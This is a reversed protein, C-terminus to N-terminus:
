RFQRGSVFKPPEGSSRDSIAQEFLADLRAMKDARLAIEEQNGDRSLLEDVVCEIFYTHTEPPLPILLAYQTTNNAAAPLATQLTFVGGTFLTCRRVSGVNTPQTVDAVIELQMGDYLSPRNKYNPSPTGVTISTTSGGSATAYHLPGWSHVYWIRINTFTGVRGRIQITGANGYRTFLWRQEDSAFIGRAVNMDEFSAKKMPIPPVGPQQVKEVLQIDAVYEPLDYEVVDSEVTTLQSVNIDLFDLGHGEGTQRIRTFLSRMVDDAADLKEGVDYVLDANDHIRKRVGKLVDMVNIANTM